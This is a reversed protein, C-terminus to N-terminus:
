ARLIGYLSFVSGAKINTATATSIDITTIVSNNEWDGWFMGTSPNAAAGTWRSYVGVPWASNNYEYINVEFGSMKTSTLSDANNAFRIGITTGGGQNNAVLSTNDSVLQQFYYGTSSSNFKMYLDNASSNTPVWQGIIMLDTYGGFSNFSVVNTDSVLTQSTILDFTRTPM